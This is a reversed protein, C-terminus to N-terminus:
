LESAIIKAFELVSRVRPAYVAYANWAQDVLYAAAGVDALALFNDVNDELAYTRVGQDIYRKAVSAKDPTFTLEAFEFGHAELWAVRAARLGNDDGDRGLHTAIHVRVGLEALLQFGERSDLMPEGTSIFGYQAVGVDVLNLYESTTINWQDKFFDWVQAAPFLERPRDYHAAAANGLHTVYDYIVGDVDIVAVTTPSDSENSSTSTSTNSRTTTM